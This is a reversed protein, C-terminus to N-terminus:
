DIEPNDKKDGDYHAQAQEKMEALAVASLPDGSLNFHRGGSMAHAILTDANESLIQNLQSEKEPNSLNEDEMVADLKQVILSTLYAAICEKIRKQKGLKVYLNGLNENSGLAQIVHIQQNDSMPISAAVLTVPSSNEQDATPIFERFLQQTLCTMFCTIEEPSKFSLAEALELYTRHEPSLYRDAIQSFQDKAKEETHM